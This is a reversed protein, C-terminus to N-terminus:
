RSNMFGQNGQLVSFVNLYNDIPTVHVSYWNDVEALQLSLKDVFHNNYNALM